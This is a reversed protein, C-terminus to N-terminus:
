SGPCQWGPIGIPKGIGGQPHFKFKSPDESSSFVKKPPKPYIKCKMNTDLGGCCCKGVCIKQNLSIDLKMPTGIGNTKLDEVQEKLNNWYDKACKIMKYINEIFKKSSKNGKNIDNLADIFGKVSENRGEFDYTNFYKFLENMNNIQSVPDNKCNEKSCIKSTRKLEGSLTVICIIKATETEEEFKKSIAKKGKCEFAAKLLTMFNGVFKNVKSLFDVSVSSLGLYDIKVIPSNHTFQYLNIGGLEEMIDRKIWRGTMPEYYRYGYYYLNTESDYYKTSFCYPNHSAMNTSSIMQNGYPDYEYGEIGEGSFIDIVQMINGKCDYCYLQGKHDSSQIRSLLGGVGGAGQLTGSLDLGWVYSITKTSDNESIVEQIMNWNDYIFLHVKALSWDGSSYNYVRKIIRRGMYDYAFEVQKDGEVPTQPFVAILRNEGNYTYLTVSSGSDISILNGDDDYVLNDTEPVGSDKIIKSYQNLANATYSQTEKASASEDWDTAQIRNGIADYAYNRYESLVPNNTNNPDDGLYRSSSVLESRDNYEYLNFGNNGANFTEGSNIVSTRRGLADYAYDYQSVLTAQFENRVQTRLARKPEYTYTTKQGTDTVLVHILDSNPLYSYATSQNIGGVNWAISNFRGITDYGYSVTYDADLSFGADRGKVSKAEYKRTIVTDYLGNITETTLQLADNYAFTRTGVADTITKQRGIRDYAFTIDPTTDSYDTNLLEGTNQDYSYTTVLPDSGDLRAWTRTALRGTCTYTYTPGKGSSDLKQILLGTAEDYIWRTEDGEGITDEPWIEGNWGQGNRYTVMKEMRDYDDHSYQVPYEADGWTHTIQGRDNYAFRTAKNMANIEAAKLGTEQDYEYSLRNGEPDELYDVQGKDNYHMSTIGTRPDTIGITRGLSDYSFTTTVGTESQSSMLLGNINISVINVNSEPVDTIDTIRKQSRDIYKRSINENGHIDIYVTEETKGESGWGTLRRKHINITTPTDSGATAYVRYISEEWWYGDIFIYFSENEDIRDNGATDLTGNGNVDFGERIQNGLEDYQYIIDAMGTQSTKILQGKENYFHETTEIIDGFGPKEVKITRGLMDTTTKEWMPSDIRGTKVSTWQTGDPNVGYTYYQPIVGTGTISKIQGDKYRTTAETAGGPRIVTEILGNPDYSYSTVLLAPDISQTLRGALDYKYRSIQKLDGAQLTESLRRGEADYTYTTTIAPQEPWDGASIGEKEETELRHLNDYTYSTTIGEENTESSLGCCDWIASTQTNNSHITKEIYGFDNLEYFTWTIRDYYGTDTYVHTEQMRENGFEDWISIERTTKYPIGWPSSVTGHVVTERIDNGEGPHLMCLPPDPTLIFTCYEYTYTNLKGDPYRISKIQGSSADDTEPPYYISITRQNGEHGYAATPTVGREIIEINNGASDQLYAYYTVGVVQGQIKEVVKRPNFFNEISQTDNPDVPTYDYITQRASQAPANVAADLWPRIESTKRRNVDYQYSIWSGDPTIQSKIKGYAGTEEPNEYYTTQTTLAAGDPDIVEKIIEEGWPFTHYTTEIVSAVINEGDMITHRVIRDGTTGDVTEERTEKRLGNERDLLWIGQADNWTYEYTDTNTGKFQIIKLRNYVESSADPNEIRWTVFPVAEPNLEYIRDCNKGLVDAPHYYRLEYSFNDNVIIDVFAQPATVQRITGDESRLAKTGKAMTSLQLAKPTSLEPSPDDAEIYLHGASIGGKAKGLYFDADISKLNILANGPINDCDDGECPPCGVYLDAEVYCSKIMSDRARVRVKGFETRDNVTIHLKFSGQAGRGGKKEDILVGTDKNFVNFDLIRDAPVVSVTLTVTEGPPIFHEFINKNNVISINSIKVVTFEEVTINLAFCYNYSHNSLLICALIYIILTIFLRSIGKKM